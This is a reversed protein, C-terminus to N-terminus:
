PQGNGDETTDLPEDTVSLDGDGEPPGAAHRDARYSQEMAAAGAQSVRVFTMTDDLLVFEQRLVVGDDRVWLRARENGTRGSRGGRDTRYIVLWAQELGGGWSIPDRGVVEAEMIEVPDTPSRLPSYVEVTWHQGPRLGPMRSQPMLGNSVMINQPLPRRIRYNSGGSRITLVMTDGAVYGEVLVASLAAGLSLTCRFRQLRGSPHFVVENQADLAISEPLTEAAGFVRVLAEPVMRLLPLQDFRIQGDIMTAGGPLRDTRVLASGVSAQNWRVEYGVLPEDAQASLIALRDPPEGPVLTPLIKERVLWAMTVIWLTFVAVNFWRSNM